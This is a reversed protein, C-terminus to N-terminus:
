LLERVEKPLMRMYRAAPFSGCRQVISPLLWNFRVILALRETEPLQKVFFVNSLYLRTYHFPLLDQVWLQGNAHANIDSCRWTKIWKHADMPLDDLRFEFPAVVHTKAPHELDVTWPKFRWQNVAERAAEAFDPHDSHLITIEDVRGDAHVMFGVRAMGMIGNRVLTTPYDPKPNHEPVLLMEAAGSPGSLCLLLM